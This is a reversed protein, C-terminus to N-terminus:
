RRLSLPHLGLESAWVLPELWISAAARLTGLTRMFDDLSSRATKEGLGLINQVKPLIQHRLVRLSRIGSTVHPRIVQHKVPVLAIHIGGEHSISLVVPEECSDTPPFSSLM